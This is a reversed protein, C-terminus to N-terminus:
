LFGIIMSSKKIPVHVAQREQEQWLHWLFFAWCHAIVDFCSNQELKEYRHELNTPNDM